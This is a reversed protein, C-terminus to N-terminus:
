FSFSGLLEGGVPQQHTNLVMAQDAVTIFHVHHKRVCAYAPRQWFIHVNSHHMYCTQGLSEYISNSTILTEQINYYNNQSPTSNLQMNYDCQGIEQSLM